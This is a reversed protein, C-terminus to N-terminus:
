WGAMTLRFDLGQILGELRQLENLVFTANFNSSTWVRSWPRTGSDATNRFYLEQNFFSAALQMSFYNTQNNHTCAIAYQWNNSNEPWGSATNAGSNEFFGSNVRNTLNAGGIIGMGATPRFLGNVNLAGTVTGGTLPLRANLQNQLDSVQAITHTHSAAAAGIEALTWSVNGSGNVSKGTSGITLTRATGWNATTINATGNFNTGNITRATALQTATGANGSLNGTFSSATVTGAMTLNGSGDMRFADAVASWGGIRFVNDTGLGMNIAYVGTRHFTMSAITTSSGRVSFSGTDNATNVDTAASSRGVLLGFMSGGSVPLRADLATQLGTVDAIAHSHSAAAAGIEALSWSVNGSGNVSKGTSGITLTRATGWNATTINASGNFSTGNITRATQLTTATGANGTISGVIANTFTKTGGITQTSTEDVLSQWAGLGDPQNTHIRRFQLPTDESFSSTAIQIGRNNNVVFSAIVSGAGVPYATDALHVGNGWSAYTDNPAPARVTIDSSSWTLNVSGNVSRTTNGITINRATGWNATTINATGNFSTGNITRATTLQAASVAASTADLKGDLATQLGTVQAITHTHSEPPFVTPKGALNGWTFNSTLLRADLATQLGTVQAITHTHSLAAKGDLAAQLGLVDGIAHGHVLSAKGAIQDMVTTAFNPDNGLADALEQLTDLTSPATGILNEIRNDLESNTVFQVPNISAAFDEATQAALVAQDRAEVTEDRAELVELNWQEVALAQESVTTATSTIAANSNFAQSAFNAAEDRYQKALGRDLATDARLATVQTEGAVARDRAAVALTSAAVADDRASSSIAAPGSVMDALKAPSEVLEIAGLATGLPYRGDGNPGGDAPGALWDGLQTERDRWRSVLETIQQQIQANSAV